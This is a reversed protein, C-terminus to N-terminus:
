IDKREITVLKDVKNKRVNARSEKVRRPDLDYGVARAGFQKAAAIVIRGDGCGLDYVLEGKKVKALELMRKVIDHPTPEYVVDLKPKKARSKAKGAAKKGQKQAAWSRPGADPLGVMAVGGLLLGVSLLLNRVM